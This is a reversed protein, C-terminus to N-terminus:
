VTCHHNLRYKEQRLPFEEAINVLAKLKLSTYFISKGEREEGMEWIKM